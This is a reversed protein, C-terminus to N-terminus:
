KREWRIGRPDVCVFTGSQGRVLRAGSKACAENHAGLVRIDAADKSCTGVALAAAIGFVLAGVIFAAGEDNM